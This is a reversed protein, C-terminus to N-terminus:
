RLPTMIVNAGAPTKSISSPSFQSYAVRALSPMAKRSFQETVPISARPTDRAPPPRTSALTITMPIPARGRVPQRASLPSLRDGSPAM